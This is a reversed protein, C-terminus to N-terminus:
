ASSCVDLLASETSGGTHPNNLLSLTGRKKRETKTKQKSMNGDDFVLTSKPQFLKCTEFNGMLVLRTEQAVFDRSHARRTRERGRAPLPLSAHAVIDYIM